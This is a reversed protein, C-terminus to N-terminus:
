LAKKETAAQIIEGVRMSGRTLADGLAETVAQNYRQGLPSANFRVYAALDADGIGRYTFAYMTPLTARLNARLRDPPLAERLRARLAKIGIRKEQPQTADMGLAVGLAMAEIFSASTEEAKIAAVLDAILGARKESPKSGGAQLWAQLSEPKMASSAEEALTMRRGLPTELWTITRKMDDATLKRALSAVIDERLLSLAYGQRAAGALADIMPDPLKGRYQALGEGEFQEPFSKLQVALGCREFLRGALEANAPAQAHVPAALALATALVATFPRM